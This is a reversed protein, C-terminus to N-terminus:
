ATTPREHWYMAWPMARRKPGPVKKAFCPMSENAAKGSFSLLPSGSPRSTAISRLGIAPPSAAWASAISLIMAPRRAASISRPRVSSTSLATASATDPDRPSLTNSSSTRSSAVIRCTSTAKMARCSAASGDDSRIRAMYLSPWIRLSM